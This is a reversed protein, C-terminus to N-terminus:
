AIPKAVEHLCDIFLRAIPSLTRDKLTIACAPVHWRPLKIPLVRVAPRKSSYYLASDPIMTIFRGSELLGYRVNLSASTVVVRPGSLGVARFAELTPSGTELEVPAQVWAEDALDALRVRRARAWKSAAGRRHKRVAEVPLKSALASVPIACASIRAM